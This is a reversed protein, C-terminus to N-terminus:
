FRTGEIIQEMDKLRLDGSILKPLLADRLAALTRSQALLDLRQSSRFLGAFVDALETPPVVVYLDALAGHIDFNPFATGTRFAQLEGERYAKRM